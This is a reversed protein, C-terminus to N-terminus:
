RAYFLFDQKPISSEECSAALIKLQEPNEMNSLHGAHDISVETAQGPTFTHKQPKETVFRLLDHTIRKM